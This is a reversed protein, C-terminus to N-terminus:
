LAVTSIGYPGPLGNPYRSHFDKLIKGHHFALKAKMATDIPVWETEVADDGATPPLMPTMDVGVALAVDYAWHGEKATARPDKPTYVGIHKLQGPYVNLNTEKKLERVAVQEIDERPEAFDGPLAWFNRYPAAKRRVLLVNGNCYAVVTATVSCKPYKDPDYNQVAANTEMELDLPTVQGYFGNAGILDRIYSPVETGCYMPDFKMATRVSEEAVDPVPQRSVSVRTGEPGDEVKEDGSRFVIFHASKALEESLEKNFVWRTVSGIDVHAMQSNWQDASLAIYTRGLDLGLTDALTEQLTGAKPLVMVYDVMHEYVKVCTERYLAMDAMKVRSELAVGETITKASEVVVVIALKRGEHKMRDLTCQLLLERLIAEHKATFPDFSGYMVYVLEAEHLKELKKSDITEINNAM